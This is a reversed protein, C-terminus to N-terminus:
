RSSTPSRGDGGASCTAWLPSCASALAIGHQVQCLAAIEQELSAGECGLVFHQSALVRDIAERVEGGIAAYQAALDLQPIAEQVATAHPNASM